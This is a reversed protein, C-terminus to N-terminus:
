QLFDEHQQPLRLSLDRGAIYGLTMAPGVNCGHAPQTGRWISNADLGAAYLGEIPQGASDLVRARGDIRLGVTTSGDGPNIQVAYFPATEATGLCPNPTHKPDGLDRDLASDGKHFDPDIGNAAYRNMTAATQELGAADVGIKRALEALTPAETIYGAALLRKLGMGGPFVMGLGYAKLFRADAVLWAPVAGTKHMADVFEVSAENGFRQGAKNVAICGPKSMDILHAYVATTGDPKKLTSAVAWVGNAVNEGDLSAGIDLGMNMGDGTNCGAMISVHQDPYPMYARRLQGNASFGGSALVVGRRVTLTQVAKDRTVRVGTVRGGDRLLATVTAERWLTVGADKASKLLRAALANGMTLRAGRKFGALRDRGFRLLLRLMYRFSAFSSKANMLHPLDPLDIMFGGPANFEARPPRLENFASGLKRADYELPRLLRGDASAGAVDQHWDPSHDAVAFAVESNAELFRLMEPGAQLYSDVVEARMNEGVVGAIYQRAAGPPDAHGAAAALHNGPIWIGGGSIATTGGFHDTKELVLVKAGRRAATIAATLGSAGSGVVIVDWDM